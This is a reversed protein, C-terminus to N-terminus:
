PLWGVANAAVIMMVILAAVLAAVGGRAAWVAGSRPAISQQRRRKWRPREGEELYEIAEDVM